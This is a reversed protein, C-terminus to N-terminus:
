RYQRLKKLFGFRSPPLTLSECLKGAPPNNTYLQLIERARRQPRALVYSRVVWAGIVVIYGILAWPSGAVDKLSSLLSKLDM